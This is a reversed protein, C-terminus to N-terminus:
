MSAFLIFEIFEWGRRVGSKGRSEAGDQVRTMGDFHANCMILLGVLNEGLDDFGSDGIQIDM